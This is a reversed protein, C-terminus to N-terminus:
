RISATDSQEDSLWGHHFVQGLDGTKARSGIQYSLEFMSPFLLLGHWLACVISDGLEMVKCGMGMRGRCGGVAFSIMESSVLQGHLRVLMGTVGALKAFFEGQLRALSLSSWHFGGNKDGAM